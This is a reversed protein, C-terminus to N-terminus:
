EHSGPPDPEVPLWPRSAAREYNEKLRLHYEKNPSPWACWELHYSGGPGAYTGRVVEDAKQRHVEALARYHASLCWLRLGGLVIAVVAVALMIRRVTFRVRPLRM